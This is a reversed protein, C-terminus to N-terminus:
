HDEEDASGHRIIDLAKLANAVAQLVLLIPMVLVFSKLIFLAPIGADKSGEAIAWSKIVLPLSLWFVVICFPILFLITGGLDVWARKHASMKSYFIDVRVHNDHRLTYAVGVMFLIGFMYLVADQAIRSNANFFYHAGVLVITILIMAVALWSVARGCLDSLNNAFSIYRQSRTPRDTM